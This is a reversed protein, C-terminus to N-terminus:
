FWGKFWNWVDRISEPRKQVTLRAIIAESETGEANIATVSFDATEQAVMSYTFERYTMRKAYRGFGVRETRTRYSRITQGDVTIAEVDESTKVTLTAKRGQMVNRSWSAEFRDPEFTEEPEPEPEPEPDKIGMMSLLMAPAQEVVENDVIAVAQTNATPQQKYTIKINTLSLINNGINAVVITNSEGATGSGWTVRHTITYYMETATAIPTETGDANVKATAGGNPSKAALQISAINSPDAVSLKFAIAQGNALYVENNPGFNTYDTLEAAAKGDVFVIAADKDVRLKGADILLNRLEIIEPWGEGDAKYADGIEGDPNKGAPDYIRVADLYFDYSGKGAHDRASSYKPTIVVTYTDYELGQGRIVPIQYLANNTDTTVEWTYNRSYTVDGSNVPTGDLVAGDPLTDVKEKTVHWKGDEGKTWTYKNYGDDTRTYGYYTDVIWKHAAEGTAKNGNYVDVLITGTTNSTLSILDFGTGKFTFTATPPNANTASNVTVVKASGLSYETCATYASDFGYVNNADYASLSFQGPRDEQQTIGDKAQGVPEWAGDFTVFSDEYYINAAPIVTVTSYYYKQDNKLNAKAAYAFKETNDMKMSGPTYRVKTGNITATGYTGTYGNPSFGGALEATGQAAPISGVAALGMVAAGEGLIDNALVSIDVPLGFDIVVADPVCSIQYKVAFWVVTHTYDNQGGNVETSLLANSVAASNNPDYQAVYTTAAASNGKTITWSGTGDGSRVSVTYTADADYLEYGAPLAKQAVINAEVEAGSNLLVESYVVPQTVKVANAFSGTAGTTQNVVPTGNEDVLYFAYSVNASAWPMVPSVTGNQADHDLWNKYTLVASKNTPYSGAAREGEMSGTLYVYYSLVQEDETIDGVNWSFTETNLDYTFHQANIKSDTLINVGPNSSSYAETGNGNFTVTEQVAPTDSKRTGVMAETVPVGNVTTGVENKKYLQYTSVTITPTVTEGNATFSTIQLDYAEGMVDTFTADYGAKKINTAIRNFANNLDSASDAKIYYSNDTAIKQLVNEMSAVTIEKDIALCFGISYMKAGLGSVQTMYPNTDTTNKTKDIVTYQSGTDGKIAEAWWNKNSDSNYFYSHSGSEADNSTGQLWNNWASKDSNASFGNYQFPAGDSMFVVYLDREEGATNNADTIAQGLQYSYYFAADYNTGSATTISNVLETRKAATNYTSAAVFAGSTYNETGTYVKASNKGDRITDGTLHDKSDLYIPSNTNSVEYGNFDAIAVRIDPVVGTTADQTNFTALMNAVSQRLVELRTTGDITNGMSSSTDLMLIVDVGKSMPVGTTSLEIKAVGTKQFDVGQGTKEVRVSGENPYEPYDNETKATVHLTYDTVTKGGYTVTLGTYDGEVNKNFDGSLMGLIVDLTRTSGDSYTVTLKSGTKAYNSAGAKVTGEMPTVEINTVTLAPVIVKATGLVKNKYSITVAYEGAEGRYGSDLTWTINANDDQLTTENKKDSSTVVDIGTKVAALADAASTGPAVTYELSGTLKAYEASAQLTAEEYIYVRNSSSGPSLMKFSSSIYLNKSTECLGNTSDYRWTTRSDDSDNTTNLSDGTNKKGRLYIGTNSVNQFKDGNTYTWQATNAPAEIYNGESDAIITVPASNIKDGNLNVANASGASGSNVILYKKGSTLSNALRFITKGQGDSITVWDGGSPDVTGGSTLRYIYFKAPNSGYGNILGRSNHNLCTGNSWFEFNNESGSITLTNGPSALTATISYESTSTFAINGSATGIKWGDGDKTFTWEKASYDGTITDGGAVTTTEIDFGIRQSGANGKTVSEPLMFYDTNENVILLYQGDSVLEDLSTVRTYTRETTEALAEQAIDYTSFHNTTFTVAGNVISVTQNPNTGTQDIVTVKRSADFGDNEDLTITVTATNGQTYGVPAIDYSVYASYKSTDVPVTKKTVTVGTLGPATVSVNGNSVTVQPTVTSLTITKPSAYVTTNPAYGSENKYSNTVGRSKLNHEGNADFRQVTVKNDEIHFVTMTLKDDAGNHNEYYGTFGANMYTFNLTEVNFETKSAQAINIQDGKALYVASGGLYDDWGNSHDHGYLFIINLGSAGAENMVDFLYNAYMGDGDNRTRMSYHLPLHSVVFIPKGYGATVKEDLYDGLAEATKKITAEDSNNWMYDDENIVYVGYKEADHAGSTALGSAAAADHNGEVLVMRDDALTSYTGTVAKKLATIGAETRTQNNVTSYDYDGCFLFGDAKTYDANQMKTLISTVTQAGAENGNPNQFDSGAIVTTVGNAQAAVENVPAITIEETPEGQTSEVTAAPNEPTSEPVETVEPTETETPTTPEASETPQVTETPVPTTEVDMAGWGGAMASAPLLGAVMILALLVSFLKKFVQNRM